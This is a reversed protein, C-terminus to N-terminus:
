NFVRLDRVKACDRCDRKFVSSRCQWHAARGGFTFGTSARGRSVRWFGQGHGQEQGFLIKRSFRIKFVRKRYLTAMADIVFSPFVGQRQGSTEFLRSPMTECIRLQSSTSTLTTMLANGSRRDANTMAMQILCLTRGGHAKSLLDM